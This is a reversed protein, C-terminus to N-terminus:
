KETGPKLGFFSGKRKITVVVISVIIIVIIVALVSCFERLSSIGLFASEKVEIISSKDNNDERKEVINNEPDIRIELEHKGAPAQWTYTILRLRNRDLRTLTKSQLDKGDVYFVINIENAAIDGINRIEVSITVIQGNTISKPHLINSALELDPLLIKLKVLVANNEPFHHAPSLYSLSVLM